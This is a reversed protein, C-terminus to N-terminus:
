LVWLRWRSSCSSITLKSMTERKVFIRMKSAKDRIELRTSGSVISRM